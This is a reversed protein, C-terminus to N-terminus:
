LLWIKTIIIIDHNHIKSDNLTKFKNIKSGNFYFQSEKYEPYETYLLKELKEFKDTNKCIIPYIIDEEVSKFIINMIKEEKNLNFPIKLKIENLEKEKLELKKKLVILKKKDYNNVMIENLYNSTERIILNQEMLIKDKNSVLLELDKVKKELEEKFKIKNELDIKILNLKNYKDRELNLNNELETIKQNLKHCKDKEIQLNNKFDEIIKNEFNIGKQNLKNYKDKEINLNNPESSKNVHENRKKFRVNKYQRWKIRWKQYWNIRLFWKWCYFLM